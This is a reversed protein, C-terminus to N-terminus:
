GYVKLPKHKKIGGYWEPIETKPFAHVLIPLWRSRNTGFVEIKHANAGLLPKMLNWVNTAVFNATMICPSSNNNTECSVKIDAFLSVNRSGCAINRELLDFFNVMLSTLM